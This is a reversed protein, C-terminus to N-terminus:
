GQKNLCVKAVEYPALVVAVKEGVAAPRVVSATVPKMTPLLENIYEIKEKTAAFYDDWTGNGELIYNIYDEGLEVTAEEANEISLDNGFLENLKTVEVSRAESNLGVFSLTVSITANEENFNVLYACIRDGGDDSVSIASLYKEDQSLGEITLGREGPADAMEKLIRGNAKLVGSMAITSYSAEALLGQERYVYEGQGTWFAFPMPNDVGAEFLHIFRALYFAGQRIGGPPNNTLDYETVFFELSAWYPDKRVEEILSEVNAVYYPDPNYTHFTYARLKWGRKKFENLMAEGVIVETVGDSSLMTAVPTSTGFGYLDVGRKSLEEYAVLTQEKFREFGWEALWNKLYDPENWIQFANIGLVDHYIDLLHNIYARWKSYNNERNVPVRGENMPRLCEGNPKYTLCYQPDIVDAPAGVIEIMIKAGRRQFDRVLSKMQETVIWGNWYGSHYLVYLRGSFGFYKEQQDMVFDPVHWGTSKMGFSKLPVSRSLPKKFDVTLNYSRSSDESDDRYAYESYITISIVGGYEADGSYLRFPIDEKLPESGTVVSSKAEYSVIPFKSYDLSGYNPSSMPQFIVPDSCDTQFTVEFEAKKGEIVDVSIDSASLECQQTGPPPPPSQGDGDGQDGDPDESGNNGDSSTDGGGGDSSTDSPSSDASHSLGACFERLRRRKQRRVKIYAYASKRKKGIVKSKRVRRKLVYKGKANKVCAFRSHLIKVIKSKKYHRIRPVSFASPLHVLELAIFLSVIFTFGKVGGVM